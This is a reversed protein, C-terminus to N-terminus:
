RHDDEAREVGVAVAPDDEVVLRDRDVGGREGAHLGRAGPQEGVELLAPAGVADVGPDAGEGAGRELRVGLEGELARQEGAARPGARRERRLDDAAREQEPEGAEEVAGGADRGRKHAKRASRSLSPQDGSTGDCPMELAPSTTASLWRNPVSAPSPSTSSSPTGTGAASASARRPTAGNSGPTLSPIASTM